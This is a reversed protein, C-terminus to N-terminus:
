MAKDAEDKNQAIVKRQTNFYLETKTMKREVGAEIIVVNDADADVYAAMTLWDIIQAHLGRIHRSAMSKLVETKDYPISKPIDKMADQAMYAVQELEDAIKQFADKLGDCKSQRAMM